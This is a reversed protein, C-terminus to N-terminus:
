VPFEERCVSFKTTYNKKQSSTITSWSLCCYRKGESAFHFQLLTGWFSQSGAFYIKLPLRCAAINRFHDDQIQASTIFHWRLLMLEFFLSRKVFTCFTIFRCRPCEGSKSVVLIAKIRSKWWKVIIISNFNKIIRWATYPLM